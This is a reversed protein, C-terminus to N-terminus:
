CPAFIGMLADGRQRNVLLPVGDVGLGPSLVGDVPELM